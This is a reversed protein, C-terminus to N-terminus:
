VHGPPMYSPPDSAPFSLDSGEDVIDEGMAPASSRRADDMIGSAVGAQTGTPSRPALSQSELLRKLRRLTDDAENEPSLRAMKSFAAGVAGLPPLYRYQLRVETGRGDTSPRFTVEGEHPFDSGAVTRWAIRENERDETLVAEWEVAGEGPLMAVWHSRRGGDAVDIREVHPMLAKLHEFDRWFHYVKEVPLDVTTRAGGTVTRTLPHSAPAADEGTIGLAEYMTCHGTMGRYLLGGGLVAMVAGPISRRGIGWLLLAGGAITSALREGTGVNTGCDRSVACAPMTQEGAKITETTM